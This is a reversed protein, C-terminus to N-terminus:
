FFFVRDPKNSISPIINERDEFNIGPGFFSYPLFIKM